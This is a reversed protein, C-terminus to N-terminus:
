MALQAPPMYSPYRVRTSCLRLTDRVSNPVIGITTLSVCARVYGCRTRLQAHKDARVMMVVAAEVLRM